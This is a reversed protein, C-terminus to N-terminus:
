ILAKEPRECLDSRLRIELNSLGLKVIELQAIFLLYFSPIGPIWWGVDWSYFFSNYGSQLVLLSGAAAKGLNLTTAALSILLIVKGVFRRLM